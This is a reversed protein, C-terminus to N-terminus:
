ANHRAPVGTDRANNHGTLCLGGGGAYAEVRVTEVLQGTGATEVVRVRIGGATRFFGGVFGMIVQPFQSADRLDAEDANKVQASAVGEARALRLFYTAQGAKKRIGMVRMAGGSLPVVLAANPQWWRRVVAEKGAGAPAVFDEAATVTQTPQVAAQRVTRTRPTLLVRSRPRAM